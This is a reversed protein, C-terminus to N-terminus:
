SSKDNPRGTHSEPTLFERAKYGASLGMVYSQGQPPRYTTKGQYVGRLFEQQDVDNFDAVREWWPKSASTRM